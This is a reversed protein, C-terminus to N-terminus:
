VRPAYSVGLLFCCTWIVRKLSGILCVGRSGHFRTTFICLVALPPEYSTSEGGLISIGPFALQALYLM